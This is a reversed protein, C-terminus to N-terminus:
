PAKFRWAADRGKRASEDKPPQHKGGVWWNVDVHLSKMRQGASLQTEYLFQVYGIFPACTEFFKPEGKLIEKVLAEEDSSWSVDERRAYELRLKDYPARERYPVRLTGRFVRTPGNAAAADAELHQWTTWHKGDASYRAYLMGSTGPREVSAKISAMSTPRWSLGIGMPETQLWVDRSGQENGQGWGLGEPRVTIRDPDSWKAKKAAENANTLDLRFTSSSDIEAVASGPWIWVLAVLLLVLWKGGM